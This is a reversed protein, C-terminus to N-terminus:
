PYGAALAVNGTGQTIGAGGYSYQGSGDGLNTGVMATNNGLPVVTGAPMGPIFFVTSDDGLPCGTMAAAAEVEEGDPFVAAAKAAAVRARAGSGGGGTQATQLANIANSNASLQGFVQGAQTLTQANQAASGPGQALINGLQTYGNIVGQTTLTGANAQAALNNALQVGRPRPLCHPAQAAHRRTGWAGATNPRQSQRKSGCERDRQCGRPVAPTNAVIASAEAANNNAITTAISNDDGVLQNTADSADTADIRLTTKFGSNTPPIALPAPTPATNAPPTANADPQTPVTNTPPYNTQYPQADTTNARRTSRSTAERGRRLGAVFEWNNPLQQQLAGLRRRKRRLKPQFEFLEPTRRWQRPEMRWRRRRRRRPDAAVAAVAMNRALAIAAVALGLVGILFSRAM